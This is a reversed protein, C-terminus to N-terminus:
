KGAWRYVDYDGWWKTQGYAVGRDNVLAGQANKTSDGRSSLFPANDKLKKCVADTGITKCGNPDWIGMHRDFVILDGAELNKAPLNKGKWVFNEPPNAPKIQWAAKYGYSMNAQTYVQNVFNSCDLVSHKTGILNRAINILKNQAAQNM